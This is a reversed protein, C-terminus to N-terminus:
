APNKKLKTQVEKKSFHTYEVAFEQSGVKMVPWLSGRSHKPAELFNQKKQTLAENNLKDGGNGPIGGRVTPKAERKFIYWLIALPHGHKRSDISQSLPRL